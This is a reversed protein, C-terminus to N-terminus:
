TCLVYKDYSIHYQPITIEIIRILPLFGGLDLYCQSFYFLYSSDVLLLTFTYKLNKNTNIYIHCALDAM